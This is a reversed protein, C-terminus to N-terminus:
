STVVLPSNDLGWYYHWSVQKNHEKALTNILPLKMLLLDNKKHKSGTHQLHVPRVLLLNSKLGSISGM